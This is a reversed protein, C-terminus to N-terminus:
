ADPDFTGFNTVEAAVNRAIDAYDDASSPTTSEHEVGTIAGPVAASTFTLVRTLNNGDANTVANVPRYRGNSFLYWDFAADRGDPVDESFTVTVQQGTVDFGVITPSTFDLKLIFTGEAVGANGAPDVAYASITFDDEMDGLDDLEVTATTAGIAADATGLPVGDEDVIIVTDGGTVNNVTVIPTRDRTYFTGATPGQDAQTGEENPAPAADGTTSGRQTSVTVINLVDPAIGDLADLVQDGLDLEVRDFARSIPGAAPTYYVAPTANRDLENVLRLRVLGTGTGTGDVYEVSDVVAGDVQWDGSGSLQGFAIRENFPVDIYDGVDDRGTTVFLAQNDFAIKGSNADVGFPAIIDVDADSSATKFNLGAARLGRAQLEVKVTGAPIGASAPMAFSGSVNKGDAATPAVTLTKQPDNENPDYRYVVALEVGAADKLVIADILVKCVSCYNTAGQNTVSGVVNVTDSAGAADTTLDVASAPPLLTLELDPLLRDLVIDALNITVEPVSAGNADINTGGGYTLTSGFTGDVVTLSPTVNYTLQQSNVGNAVVTIPQSEFAVPDSAISFTSSLSASPGGTKKVNLKFDTAKGPVAATPTLTGAVYTLAVKQQVTIGTLVEKEAASGTTTALARIALNGANGFKVNATLTAIADKALSTTSSPPTTEVTSPGSETEVTGTITKAVGAYNIVNFTVEVNDQQQTVLTPDPNTVPTPKVIKVSDAVIDLIRVAVDLVGANTATLGEDDSIQVILSTTTDDNVREVVTPLTFIQTGEPAIGAGDAMYTVVGRRTNYSATWGTPANNQADKPTLIDTDVFAQVANISSGGPQLVPVGGDVASNTVAFQLQHTQGSFTGATAVAKGEGDVFTASGTALAFAPVVTGVLMVSLALVLTLTRRITTTM